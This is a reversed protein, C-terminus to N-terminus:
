FFNKYNKQHSRTIIVYQLQQLRGEEGQSVVRRQDGGIRGPLWGQFGDGDGDGYPIVMVVNEMVVSEMVVAVEMVAAVVWPETDGGALVDLQQLETQPSGLTRVPPEGGGSISVYTVVACVVSKTKSDDLKGDWYQLPFRVM